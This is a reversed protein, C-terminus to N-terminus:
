WKEVNKKTYIQGKTKFLKSYVHWYFGFNYIKNENKSM